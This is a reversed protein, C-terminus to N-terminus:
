NGDAIENSKGIQMRNLRSRATSADQDRFTVLGRNVTLNIDLNYM